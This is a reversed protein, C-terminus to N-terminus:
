AIGLQNRNDARINVRGKLYPARSCTEALGVRLAEIAKDQNELAFVLFVRTYTRPMFQDLPSLLSTYQPEM